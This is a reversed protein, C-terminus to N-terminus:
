AEIDEEKYKNEVVEQKTEEEMINDKDNKFCCLFKKVIYTLLWSFNAIGLWDM